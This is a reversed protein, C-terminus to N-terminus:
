RIELRWTLRQTCGPQSVVPCTPLSDDCATTPHSRDFAEVRLEVINGPSFAAPDFDLANGTAGVLRERAPAGPVLISWAFTATGLVPDGHAPPYVDLDDDVLPVQFLTRQTVPYTAGAPPVSPQWQALCPPRDAAVTIALHQLSAVGVPDTATVQVDWEGIGQPTLTKGATVHAPDNADVPVALDVLTYDPQTSPTFVQWALAVRAPGDDADGYKGFLDIPIGAVYGHRSVKRLELTPSADSVPIVLEQTPNAAAGRDDSAALVVRVAEVPVGSARRLPVVLAATPDTGTFFQQGDCISGSADSVQTCAFAAWRLTGGTGDPDNYRAELVVVDGRHVTDSSSQHIGISPRQNIPDFYFCGSGLVAVTAALLKV